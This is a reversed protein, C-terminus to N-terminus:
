GLCYQINKLNQDRKWMNKAVGLRIGGKVWGSPHILSVSEAIKNSAIVFHHWIHTKQRSGSDTHYPPNGVIAKFKMIKNKDKNKIIAPAELENLRIDCLKKGTGLLIQLKVLDKDILDYSTFHQAIHNTSLGLAEYMKRTFEYAARSTPISYFTDKLDEIKTGSQLAREVFGRAFNGSKSAIDLVKARKANKWFSADFSDYMLNVIHEPTFVESASLRGFKNIAIEIHETPYLNEDIARYDINQIKYDLTSLVLPNVNTRFLQLHRKNLGLNAAIRRNDKNKDINNIIDSLSKEETNSLFAFLLIMVYYTRFRKEFTSIDEGTENGSASSLTQTGTTNDGNTDQTDEYEEGEEQNPKMNLGNKDGLEPLKSIVAFINKNDKLSLDISIDRVDELITRESAYQRVEDIINTATVEVLKNQEANLAIIPSVKLERKINIEINENGINHTNAGFVFAKREQLYFLRTPDLDVLLTQPKM